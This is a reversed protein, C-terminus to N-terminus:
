LLESIAPLLASVRKNKAMDLLYPQSIKAYVRGSLHVDNMAQMDIAQMDIAQM